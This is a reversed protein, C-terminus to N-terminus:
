IPFKNRKFLEECASVVKPDYYTGSYLEIRELVSGMDMAPRYPRESSMAEVIDAVALIRSQLMLDEGKLGYPYGTGDFHEHHQLVIEAVPWPFEVNRLIEWGYVTHRKVLEVEISSLREPKNLIESPINIKGIDHVLSAYHIGKIKDAPLNMEQAIAVALYSVRKQHGATYPDRVELIRGVATITGELTTQLSLLGRKLNEESDQRQFAESLIDRFTRLMNIDSSKWVHNRWANTFGTIGFIKEDRYMPLIIMSETGLRNFREKEEEKIYFGPDSMDEVIVQGSTILADAIGSSVKLKNEKNYESLPSFGPSAWEHTITLTKLFDDTLAIYARDAGALDALEELSSGIVGTIDSHLVMRSSISSILEEFKLREKLRNEYRKRNTIDRYIGYVMREGEVSFPMGTVSVPFLNGDSRMRVTELEFDIGRFAKRSLEEAESGLDSSAAVIQNMPKGIVESPIVKFMEGMCKNMRTVRDNKDILVIGEPSNQFLQEMFQKEGKLQDEAKRSRKINFFLYAAFIIVSIVVLFNIIIIDMHSEFFSTSRNYLLSGDPLDEIRIGSRKIVPYSFAYVSPGRVWSIDEPAEGQLVKLSLEGAIKCHDSGRHVLGGIVRNESVLHELTSFVPVRSSSIVRDVADDPLINGVWSFNGAEPIIIASDEPLDEIKQGIQDLSLKELELFHVDVDPPDSSIDMEAIYRYTSCKICVVYVRGLGPILDKILAATSAIEEKKTTGTSNSAGAVPFRKETIGCYVVPIQPFIYAGYSWILRLVQDDTGIILDFDTNRYKHLYLMALDFLNGSGSYRRTDMYDTVIDTEPMAEQISNFIARGIKDTWAYGKHYSHLLLVRSDEKESSLSSHEPGYGSEMAFVPASVFFVVGALLIIFVQRLFM